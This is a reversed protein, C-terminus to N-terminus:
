VRKAQLLVLEVANIEGQQDLYKQQMCCFINQPHTDNYQGEKMVM